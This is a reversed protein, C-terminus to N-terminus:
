VHTPRKGIGMYRMGPDVRGRIVKSRKGTLDSGFMKYADSEPKEVNSGVDSKVPTERYHGVGQQIDGRLLALDVVDNYVDDNHTVDSHMADNESMMETSKTRKSRKGLSSNRVHSRMRFVDRRLKASRKVRGTGTEEQEIGNIQGPNKTTAVTTAPLHDNHLQQTTSSKYPPRSLSSAWQTASTQTSMKGSGPPLTKGAPLDNKSDPVAKHNETLCSVIQLFLLSVTISIFALRRHSAM